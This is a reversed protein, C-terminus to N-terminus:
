IGARNHALGPAHRASFHSSRRLFDQRLYRVTTRVKFYAAPATFEHKFNVRRKLYTLNQAILIIVSFFLEKLQNVFYNGM